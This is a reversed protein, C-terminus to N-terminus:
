TYRKKSYIISTLLDYIIVKIRFTSVFDRENFTITKIKHLKTFRILEDDLDTNIKSLDDWMGYYGDVKSLVNNEQLDKLVDLEAGEINMRILIIRKPDESEKKIVDSVKMASVTIKKDSVKYLSDGHGDGNLYLDVSGNEPIERCVAANLLDVCKDNDYKEKVCNFSSSNAEIGICRFDNSVKPLVYERMLSLEKAAVHTGIDIYMIKVNKNYKKFIAKSSLMKKARRYLVRASLILNDGWILFWSIKSKPANTSPRDTTLKMVLDWNWLGQHPHWLSQLITRQRKSM